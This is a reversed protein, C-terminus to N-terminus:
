ASLAQVHHNTCTICIWCMAELSLRLPWALEWREPVIKPSCYHHCIKKKKETETHFVDTKALQKHHMWKCRLYSIKGLYLSDSALCIICHSMENSNTKFSRTLFFYFKTLWKFIVRFVRATSVIVPRLFLLAKWAVDHADNLAVLYGWCAQNPKCLLAASTHLLFHHLALMNCCCQLYIAGLPVILLHSWVHLKSPWIRHRDSKPLAGKNKTVHCSSHNRVGVLTAMRM